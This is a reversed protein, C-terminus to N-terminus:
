LVDRTKVFSLEESTEYRGLIDLQESTLLVNVATAVLAEDEPPIEAGASDFASDVYVDRLICINEGTAADLAFIDIVDGSRLIGCVADSFRSVALGKIVADQYRERYEGDDKFDEATLPQNASLHSTIFIGNEDSLLSLDALIGEYGYDQNIERVTFYSAMEEQHILTGAEIERTAVVAPRLIVEGMSRIHTLYLLGAISAAALVGYLIVSRIKRRIRVKNDLEEETKPETRSFSRRFGKANREENVRKEFSM